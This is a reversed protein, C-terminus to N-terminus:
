QIGGGKESFGRKKESFLAKDSGRGLFRSQSLDVYGPTGSHVLIACRRESAIKVASSPPSFTFDM